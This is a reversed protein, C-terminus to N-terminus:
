MKALSVQRWRVASVEGWQPGSEFQGAVWTLHANHQEQGGSGNACIDHLM